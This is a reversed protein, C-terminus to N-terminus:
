LGIEVSAWGAFRGLGDTGGGAGVGTTFVEGEGLDAGAVADAAVVALTVRDVVDATDVRVAPIACGELVEGREM